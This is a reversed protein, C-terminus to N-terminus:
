QQVNGCLFEIEKIQAIIKKFFYNTVQLEIHFTSTENKSQLLKAILIKVISIKSEL